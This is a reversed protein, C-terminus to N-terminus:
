GVGGVGVLLGVIFSGVTRGGVLATNIGRCVGNVGNGVVFSLMVVLTMSGEPAVLLMVVRSISEGVGGIGAALTWESSSAVGSGVCGSGVM